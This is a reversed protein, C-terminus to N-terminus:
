IKKSKKKVPIHRQIFAVFIKSLLFGTVIDPVVKGSIGDNAVMTQGFHFYAVCTIVYVWTGTFSIFFANM